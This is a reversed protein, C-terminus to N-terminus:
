ITIHFNRVSRLVVLEKDKLIQEENQRRSDTAIKLKEELEKRVIEFERLERKYGEIERAMKMLIVDKASLDKQMQNVLNVAINKEKVLDDEEVRKWNSGNDNTRRTSGSGCECSKLDRRLADIERGVRSLNADKTFLDKQLKAVQAMATQKDRKFQELENSLETLQTNLSSQTKTTQSQYFALKERLERIEKTKVKIERELLNM